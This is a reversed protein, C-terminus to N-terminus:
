SSLFNGAKQPVRCHMIAKMLGQWRDRNQAMHIWDVIEWGVERVGIGINGKM